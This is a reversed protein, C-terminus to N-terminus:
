WVKLYVRMKKVAQHHNVEAAGTRISMIRGIEEFTHGEHHRLIFALRQRSPLKQLASDIAVKLIVREGVPDRQTKTPSLCGTNRTFGTSVIRMVM